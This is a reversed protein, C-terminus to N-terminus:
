DHDMSKTGTLTSLELILYYLHYGFASFGLLLLIEFASRPTDRGKLGIYLIVPAIIFVHILNVWLSLSGSSYKIWSKYSQYLLVVLGLGILAKFAWEPLSARQIGVYILVPAVFLVHFISLILHSNM